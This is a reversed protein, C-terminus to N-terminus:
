AVAGEQLIAIHRQIGGQSVGNESMWRVYSSPIDALKKGRYKGWFIRFEGGERKKLESIVKGAQSKSYGTATEARVGLGILLHVQKASARWPEPTYDNVPDFNGGSFIDVDQATYEARTARLQTAIQKKREEDETALRAERAQKAKEILEEVDVPEAAVRAEALASELDLPEADDGALVDTLSVLKHRGSNGVFDLVICHPKDSEAIAARRDEPTEPGDVIGPLPRTGRGIMQLYLSESKTPRAVAVVCTKPADFGETFCGCGVLVQTDGRKYREVIQARERKDTTGIVLEAVVGDYANFAMTLKEAHAVGAAFVLIPQGRAEDLCPKAIEHLQRQEDEDIDSLYVKELEGDALDGDAKTGVKDLDLWECTVFRQRIPCLWGENIAHKLNMEYAVSEFANHMGLNDARKPTATVGLFKLATNQSYWEKVLLYSKAPCRHAEDFIALGFDHPNFKEFRRMRGSENCVVCGGGLCARCKGFAIQTQITSVVVIENRVRQDGMEIGVTLGARRAHDVAQHILERRHALVLIRKM